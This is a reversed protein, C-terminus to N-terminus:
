REKEKQRRTQLSMAALGSPVRHGMIWPEHLKVPVDRSFEGQRSMANQLLFSFCPGPTCQDIMIHRGRVAARFIM